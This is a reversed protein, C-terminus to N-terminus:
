RGQLRSFTASRLCPGEQSGPRATRHVASVERGHSRRNGKESGDRKAQARGALGGKCSHGSYAARSNKGSQQPCQKTHPGPFPVELEVLTGAVDLVVIRQQGRENLSM